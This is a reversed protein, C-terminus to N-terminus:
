SRMIANGWINLTRQEHPWIGAPRDPACNEIEASIEVLNEDPDKVMFFFDNGPGHRGVGWFIPARKVSMHDAWRRIHEWDRTEYSHHDLRRESALFFAISHHEADTRLFCARLVGESDHVRDSVTFELGDEFFSLMRAVNTTRFVVHQLRAPLEDDLQRESDDCSFVVTNGDPDRVAFSEAGYGPFRHATLNMGRAALRERYKVLLRPDPFSYAVFGVSNPRGPEIAIKRQPARCQFRAGDQSSATMGFTQEFFEALRKPNESHICLHNLRAGIEPRALEM